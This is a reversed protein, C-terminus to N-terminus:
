FPSAKRFFLNGFFTGNLHSLALPGHRHSKIKKKGGSGKREIKRESQRWFFDNFMNM